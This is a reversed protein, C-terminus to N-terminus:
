ENKLLHGVYCIRQVNQRLHRLRCVLFLVLEPLYEKVLLNVQDKERRRRVLTADEERHSYAFAVGELRDADRVFCHVLLLSCGDVPEFQEQRAAGVRSVDAQYVAFLPRRQVDRTQLRDQGQHPHITAIRSAGTNQNLFISDLFYTKNPKFFIRSNRRIVLMNMRKSISTQIPFFYVKQSLFLCVRTRQRAYVAPSGCIKLKIHIKRGSKSM